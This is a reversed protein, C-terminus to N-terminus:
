MEDVSPYIDDIDDLNLERKPNLSDTPESMCTLFYNKTLEPIKIRRGRHFFEGHWTKGTLPRTFCLNGERYPNVDCVYSIHRTVDEAYHRSFLV